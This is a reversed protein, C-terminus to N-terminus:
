DNLEEGLDAAIESQQEYELGGIINDIESQREQSAGERMSEQNAIQGSYDGPGDTM